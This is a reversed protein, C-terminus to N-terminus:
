QLLCLKKVHLFNRNFPTRIGRTMRRPGGVVSLNIKSQGCNRVTYTAAATQVPCHLIKLGHNACPRFEFDCICCFESPSLSYCPLLLKSLGEIMTGSTDPPCPCCINSSDVLICRERGSAASAGARERAHANVRWQIGERRRTQDSGVLNGVM